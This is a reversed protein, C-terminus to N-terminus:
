QPASPKTESSVESVGAQDLAAAKKSAMVEGIKELMEETLEPEGAMGRMERKMENFEQVPTQMSRVTERQREKAEAEAEKQEVYWEEHRTRFRSYKNRLEDLVQEPMPPSLLGYYFTRENVTERVCDAAKAEFEPVEVEPWPITVNLSPVVRDWKNGYQWRDLSMNPSQMNPPVSKLQNIVVDRTVGTEPDPLPYVLRVSDVAIPMAQSRSPNNFM